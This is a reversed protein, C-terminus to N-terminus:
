LSEDADLARHNPSRQPATPPPAQAMDQEFPNRASGGYGGCRYERSPAFAPAVPAPRPKTGLFALQSRIRQLPHLAPASKLMDKARDPCSSHNAYLYAHVVDSKWGGCRKVQEIDDTCSLMATAGGKRPSHSGVLHAPYGEAAAAFRLIKSISERTIGMRQNQFQDTKSERLQAGQLPDPHGSAIHAYRVASLRQKIGQATRGMVEHLFVVFRILWTEDALKEPRTEGVLFPPRGTGSM